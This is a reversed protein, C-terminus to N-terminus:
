EVMAERVEQEPIEVHECFQQVSVPARVGKGLDKRIEQLIRRATRDSVGMITVVDSPYIVVRKM